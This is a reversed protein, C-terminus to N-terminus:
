NDNLWNEFVSSKRPPLIPNYKQVNDYKMKLRKIIRDLTSMSINLEMSQKTRSWGAIRTRLVKEEQETLLSEKVFEEVIVKNWPVEHSMVCM